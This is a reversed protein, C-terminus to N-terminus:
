SVAFVAFKLYRTEPMSPIVPHDPSAGAFEVLQINRRSKRAASEISELFSEETIHHSCSASVLFGGAEVLKLSLTNIERYGKLATTVHKKSRAFSPPDLIVVEYRKQEGVREQLYEFADAQSFSVNTLENIHANTKARAIATASQDVGDVHSAKAYGANLSFGGEYCFCDLVRAGKSYRRVNVRNERQDLFFGTKQGNLLDVKYKLGHEDIITEDLTGRLVGSREPLQELGRLASDNREVLARPHFLSELVDCILTLRKDMGFSLVQLCLYENYKDIILGPLFDSEGNVLRFTESNPFLTRRLQLARRIRKEFFEFGIEEHDVSLLRFSILSNRNFFGVGLVKNHHNLLEVLDGTEPNGRTTAIENSFVWQHGALIRHEENKKLIIQKEM